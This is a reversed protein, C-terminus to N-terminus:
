LLIDKLETDTCEKPDKDVDRILTVKGYQELRNKLVLQKKKVISNDDDLFVIFNNYHFVLYALHLDSIDTGFLPSSDIIRGCKIASLLDETLVIAPSPIVSGAKMIVKFSNRNRYTLYKPKTDSDHIKRTQFFALGENDFVPLIVRGLRDSYVIQHERIEDDTIGYQRVWHYAHIPWDTVSNVADKPITWHKGRFGGLSKREPIAGEAKGESRTRRLVDKSYRGYKGCRFCKASITGDDKREILLSNSDGYCDDTDHNVRTVEGVDLTKGIDLFETYRLQKSETM